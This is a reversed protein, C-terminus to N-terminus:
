FFRTSYIKVAMTIKMPRMLCVIYHQPVRMMTDWQRARYHLNLVECLRKSTLCVSGDQNVISHYSEWGYNQVTIEVEIGNDSWHDDTVVGNLIDDSIDEDTPRQRSELLPLLFEIFCRCLSMRLVVPLLWLSQWLTLFVSLCYRPSLFYPGQPIVSTFHKLLNLCETLTM